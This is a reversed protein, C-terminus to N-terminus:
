PRSSESAACNLSIWDWLLTENRTSICGFMTASLCGISHTKAKNMVIAWFRARLGFTWARDAKTNLAPSRIYQIDPSLQFKGSIQLRAFLEVGTQNDLGPGFTDENPEDWNLLTVFSFYVYGVLQQRM